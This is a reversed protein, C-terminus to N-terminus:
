FLFPIVARREPPYDPFRSHYWKHGRYARPLMLVVELFVFAYPPHLTELLQAFSEFSPPPAAALAFGLWECWECFYNPYSIFHYLYGHPVAYHEQNSKRKGNDDGGRAKAKGKAKANRRINLLIEDHLINGALGLAWLGIGTWFLPRSFADALFHQADPSSLYTGMLSGNLLNFILGSLIVSVHSKSRSPTRLPSILARNLYHLLFLVALLTSPHELSLPPTVESALPAKFYSYALMFPSVLEM